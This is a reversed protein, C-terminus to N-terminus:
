RGLSKELRDLMEEPKLAGLPYYRAAMAEAIRWAHSAFAGNRRSLPAGNSTDFVVCALKEERIKGAIVLSEKVPDDSAYGVNGYGDTILVLLPSMEGNHRLERKALQFGLALGHNLPTAGGTTLEKLRIKAVQLSSTPALVLQASEDRFTILGVKDRKQYADILLDSVVKRTSEIKERSGMSASADLIFLILNGVKRRYVAKRLDEKEVTFAKEKAVSRAAAARLTADIAVRGAEVPEDPRPIRHGVRRGTSDGITNSRKGSLSRLSEVAPGELVPAEAQVGDKSPLIDEDSVRERRRNSDPKLSAQHASTAPSPSVDQPPLSVLRGKRETIRELKEMDKLEDFPNKRLRHLFAMEAAERVHDEDVQTKNELAALARAAQCTAIDARHGCVGLEMAINSVLELIADPLEVAPLLKRAELIMGRLEEQGLQFEARFLQPDELFRQRRRIIEVRSSTGQEGKVDVCLGFRDELQPRLDGEEPNMTGTLLFSSPHSYSVGEREVINAGMAAADLLVDVIHDDLLNVEDVYLISRNAAALLGPEFDKVGEKLARELDLTGVVRDESANLPLTIFSPPRAIIPLPEARDWRDRCSECMEDGDHPNCSFTCDAVIDIDPLLEALARAATSKATGREGKILLGGIRFDIANVLLARKMKEQGIIASFPYLLFDRKM